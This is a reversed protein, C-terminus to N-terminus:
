GILLEPMERVRGERDLCALTTAGTALLEDDRHLQYAHEIKARGLRAITTEIRLTDDYRAPLRYAIELKVVALFAGAEELDRYRGGDARLMETRGQEFWIPYVSHHAVGMPDCENYRVRMELVHVDGENVTVAIGRCSDIRRTRTRQHNFWQM